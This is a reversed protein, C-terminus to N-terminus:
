IIYRLLFYTSLRLRSHAGLHLESGKKEATNV